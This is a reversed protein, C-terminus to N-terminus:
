KVTVNGFTVDTNYAVLLISGDQTPVDAYINWAVPEVDNQKWFKVSFRSKGNSLIESSSKLMYTVNKSISVSQQPDPTEVVEWGDLGGYTLIELTANSIPGRIWALAQLPWEIKPSRVGEHGQWGVAFGIGSFGSHLTIPVTVEYDSAWTADGIAISRDYGSQVTRIGDDTLTWLGDVVHAINEIEKIDELSKWNATYPFPWYQGPDYNVTVIKRTLQNNSDKAKIEIQNFGVNLDTYDIEINFDGKEQLRRSDSGFKLPQELGGNVTYVLSSLNIDTSVNGLINAWKQSLGLQGSSLQGYEYWTNILPAAINPSVPPIWSDNDNIPEDLDIFYDVSSLFQPNVGETGAFFGVETVALGQIFTGTDTWNIGDSSYRFTWNDGTRIVQRYNPSDTLAISRYITVTGSIADVYAVFLHVGSSNYFVDFRLFIDDTQQVVIGQLQHKVKPVTEFKVEFKFDTDPAPQLLRPAKNSKNTKWLDHALGKPVDILANTGDFILKSEGPDNDRNTTDYPDYFRWVPNPETTAINFDDSLLASANIIPSLVVIMATLIVKNWFAWGRIQQSM